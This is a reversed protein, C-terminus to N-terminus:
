KRGEKLGREREEESGEAKWTQRHTCCLMRAGDAALPQEMFVQLFLLIHLLPGRSAFKRMM